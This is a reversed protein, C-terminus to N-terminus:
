IVRVPLVNIMIIQFVLITLFAGATHWTGSNARAIQAPKWKCCQVKVMNYAKWDRGDKRAGGQSTQREYISNETFRVRETSEM